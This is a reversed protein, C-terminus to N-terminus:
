RRLVWGPRVKSCMFSFRSGSSEDEFHRGSAVSVARDTTLRRASVARDVMNATAPMGISRPEIGADPVPLRPLDPVPLGPHTNDEKKESELPFYRSLRKVINDM